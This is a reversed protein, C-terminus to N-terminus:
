KILNGMKHGGKNYKYPCNISDLHLDIKINKIAFAQSDCLYQAIFNCYLERSYRIAQLKLIYQLTTNHKNIIRLSM